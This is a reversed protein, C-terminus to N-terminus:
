EADPQLSDTSPAAEEGERTEHSTKNEGAGVPTLHFASDKPKPQPSPTPRLLLEWTVFLVALVALAYLGYRQIVTVILPAALGIFYGLGVYICSWLLAAILEYLIFPGYPMRVMGASLAVFSRLHGLAHSALIAKGGHKNLLVLSAARREALKFRRAWRRKEWRDIVRGLVFRGLLYDCSFGSATGLWVFLVVLGVNLTGQRAFYGGLIAFTGAPFIISAFVTNGVLEACYVILYGYQDYAATLWQVLTQITPM